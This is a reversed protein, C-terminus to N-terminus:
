PKATSTAVVGAEVMAVALASYNAIQQGGVEAKAAALIDEAQPCGGSKVDANEMAAQVQAPTLTVAM